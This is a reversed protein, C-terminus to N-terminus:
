LSFLQYVSIYLIFFHLFLVALLFLPFPPSSCSLTQVLTISRSFFLIELALSLSLSIHLTAAAPQPEGIDIESLRCKTSQINQRTGMRTQYSSMYTDTIPVVGHYATPVPSGPSLLPLSPPYSPSALPRPRQLNCDLPMCPSAFPVASANGIFRPPSHGKRTAILSVEFLSQLGTSTITISVRYHYPAYFFM